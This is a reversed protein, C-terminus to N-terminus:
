REMSRSKQLTANMGEKELAPVAKTLWDPPQQDLAKVQGREITAVLRAKTDSNDFVRARTANALASELNEMSRKYRRKIDGEPVSHGGLTARTKVREASDEPKDLGLYVLEVEYGKKQALKMLTFDLNSSLTSEKAFSKGEALFQRARNATAKGADLPSLGESKAIHDPDLVPMDEKIGSKESFTSKGAGNPGCILTMQPM